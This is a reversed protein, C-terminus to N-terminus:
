GYDAWGRGRGEPRVDLHRPPNPNSAPLTTVTPVPEVEITRGPVDFSLADEDEDGSSWTEDDDDEHFVPARGPLARETGEPVEKVAKDIIGLLLEDFPTSVAVEVRRETLGARDLADMTARLRNAESDGSTAIKILNAM